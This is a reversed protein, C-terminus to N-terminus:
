RAKRRKAAPAPSTPSLVDEALAELLSAIHKDLEIGVHRASVPSKCKSCRMRHALHEQTSSPLAEILRRMRTAFDGLLRVVEARDVYKGAALDREERKAELNMRALELDIEAKSGPPPLSLQAAGSKPGTKGPAWTADAQEVDIAGDANVPITASAVASKVTRADVGRHRAYDQPTM